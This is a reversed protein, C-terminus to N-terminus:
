GAPASSGAPQSGAPTVSVSPQSGAPTASGGPGDATRGPAPSVAPVPVAGPMGPAADPGASPDVPPVDELFEESVDNSSGRRLFVAPFTETLIKLDTWLSLKDVYEDDFAMMQSRRLENRGRIAVFCTVGPKVTLSKDYLHGYRRVIFPLNPRPGVLSMDGTIVNFLQPLEDLSTARLFHGAKTIRPDGEELYYGKGQNVADVVMTRFKFIRFVRGGRGVREQRFFVPKGSTFRVVAALVAFLPSILVTGPVTLGLDFVRKGYRAYLTRTRLPPWPGCAPTAPKNM